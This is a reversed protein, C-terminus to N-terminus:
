PLLHAPPTVSQILAMQARAAQGFWRVAIVDLEPGRLIASLAAQVSRRLAPDARVAIALPEGVIPRPILTMDALRTDSNVRQSLVAWEGVWAGVDGEVLRRAAEAYNAVPVMTVDVEARTLVTELWNAATGGRLVAIRRPWDLKSLLARPPVSNAEGIRLLRLLWPPAGPRLVAGIGGVAIPSSFDVQRERAVTDSVPGCLLDAGGQALRDLGDSISTEQWSPPAGPMVVDAIRECLTVAYGEPIGGSGVSSFPAADGVFLLRLGSMDAAALQPASVLALLLGAVRLHRSWRFTLIQTTLVITDSHVVAVALQRL